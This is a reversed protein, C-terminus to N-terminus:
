AETRRIKKPLRLKEAGQEIRRERDETNELAQLWSEAVKKNYMNALEARYGEETALQAFWPLVYKEIAAAVNSFSEKAIDAGAYDWWVDIGCIYSGLRNGLDLVVHEKECYLPMAAFNVCFTKSGHSEKQLDIYELLGIANIRAYANTKYKCFGKGLLLTDLIEKKCRKFALDAEEKDIRLMEDETRIHIRSGVFRFEGEAEKRAPNKRNCRKFIKLM